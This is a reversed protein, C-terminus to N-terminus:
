FQHTMGLQFGTSSERYTHFNNYVMGVAKSGNDTFAVNAYISTRKTFRCTYGLAYKKVSDDVKKGSVFDNHIPGDYRAYNFAANLEGAGLKLQM